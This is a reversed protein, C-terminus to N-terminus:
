ISGFGEPGTAAGPEATQEYQWWGMEDPHYKQGLQPLASFEAGSEVDGAVCAHIYAKLMIRGMIQKRITVRHGPMFYKLDSSSFAFFIPVIAHTSKTSEVTTVMQYAYTQVWSAIWDDTLLMLASM